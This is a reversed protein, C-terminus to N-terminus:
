GRCMMSCVSTFTFMGERDDDVKRRGGGGRDGRLADVMEDLYDVRDLEKSPCAGKGPCGRCRSRTDSQALEPVAATTHRWRSVAM